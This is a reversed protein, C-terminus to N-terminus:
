GEADLRRVMEAVVGAMVALSQPRVRDLTDLRTHYNPPLRAIDQCLLAVTPVGAHGFASADTAGFPIIGQKMPQGQDAAVAKALAVLAPDHRVGTTLERTVVTLQREDYVGDVNIDVTPVASLEAAHRAAFRKAGRLGCEEAACALVVLETHALGEAALTRGVATITVVGALDDMAGPVVRFSHFLVHLAAFPALAGGVWGLGGLTPGDVVGAVALAGIALAFLPAAGLGLLNIPVGLSKFWYWLNFEWAADQHASLIVRRRVEGRPRVVGVVNVGTASPFLRDVLEVYLLLEAVTVVVSVGALGISWWPWWPLAALAGLTLASVFPIFGLFAWPQCSFSEARVEDCFPALKGEVWRGLAREGESCSARPGLALAEAIERHLAEGDLRVGVCGALGGV